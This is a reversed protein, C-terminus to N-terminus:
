LKTSAAIDELRLQDMVPQIQIEREEGSEDNVLIIKDGPRINKLITEGVVMCAQIAFRTDHIGINEKLTQLASQFDSNPIIGSYLTEKEEQSFVLIHVGGSADFVRQDILIIRNFCAGRNRIWRRM